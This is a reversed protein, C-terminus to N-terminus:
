RGELSLEQRVKLPLYLLVIRQPTVEEVRYNNDITDGTRVAYTRDAALLFATTAAGDELKGISTFPLPPPPPPPPPPPKYGKPLVPPPPPPPPGWALTVGPAPQEALPLRTFRDSTLAPPAAASAGVPPTADDAGHAAALPAPAPTTRPPASAAPEPVRAAWWTAGLTATLAVALVVQRRRM